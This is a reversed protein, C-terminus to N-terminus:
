LHLIDLSLHSKQFFPKAHNLLNSSYPSKKVLLLPFFCMNCFRFQRSHRFYPPFIAPIAPIKYTCKILKILNCVNCLSQVIQVVIYIHIDSLAVNGFYPLRQAGNETLPCGGSITTSAQPDRPRIPSDRNKCFFKNSKTWEVFFSYIQVRINFM